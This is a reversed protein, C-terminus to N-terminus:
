LLGKKSARSIIFNVFASCLVLMFEAEEFGIEAEDLIAHRIGSTDSTYGYLSLIGAKFGGHFGIISDLKLLPTDLGGGSIGTLHKTISEVASISEKISNRYDPDPKKALLSLATELHKKTGFLEKDNSSEISSIISKIEEPNTIQSLVGSIFRYGSMEEELLINIGSKFDDSNIRSDLETTHEAIFEILNYVDFWKFKQYFFLKHLVNIQETKTEPLTDFPLKLHKEFIFKVKTYFLENFGPEGFFINILLYNWLRNRMREDMGEIQLTSPIKTAGIRDSFRM